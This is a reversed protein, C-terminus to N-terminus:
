RSPNCQAMQCYARLLLLSSDALKKLNPTVMKPHVPSPFNPGLYPEIEPRMDDAVFFLVNKRKASVAVLFTVVLASVAYM